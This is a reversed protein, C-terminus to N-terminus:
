TKKVVRLQLHEMNVNFSLESNSESIQVTQGNMKGVIVGHNGNMDVGGIPNNIDNMMTTGISTHHESPSYISTIVVSKEHLVGSEIRKTNCSTFFVLGILILSLNRMIKM